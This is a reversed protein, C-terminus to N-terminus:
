NTLLDCPVGVPHVVGSDAAPKRGKGKGVASSKIM